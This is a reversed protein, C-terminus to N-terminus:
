SGQDVYREEMEIDEVGSGGIETLRWGKGYGNSRLRKCGEPASSSCKALHRNQILM